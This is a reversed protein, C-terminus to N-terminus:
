ILSIHRRYPSELDHISAHLMTIYGGQSGNTNFARRSPLWIGQVFNFLPKKAMGGRSIYHRHIDFMEDM